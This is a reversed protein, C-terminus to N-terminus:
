GELLFRFFNQTDCRIVREVYGSHINMM